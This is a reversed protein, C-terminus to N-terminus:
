FLKYKNWKQLHIIIECKTESFKIKKKLKISKIISLQVHGDCFPSIECAMVFYYDEKNQM